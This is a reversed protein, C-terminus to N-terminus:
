VSLLYLYMKTRKSFRFKKWFKNKKKNGDDTFFKVLFFFKSDILLAQIKLFTSTTLYLFQIIHMKEGRKKTEGTVLLKTYNPHQLLKQLIWIVRNAVHYYQLLLSLRHATVHPVVPNGVLKPPLFDVCIWFILIYECM